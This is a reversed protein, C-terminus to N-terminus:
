RRNCKLETNINTFGIYFECPEKPLNDYSNCLEDYNNSKINKKWCFIKWEDMDKIYKSTNTGMFDYWNNWVGKSKFYQEPEIIFNNHIIHSNMYERKSAIYLSQNISKVYNYEDQEETLNSYLSKSYRLRIKLKNLETENYDYINNTMIELETDTKPKQNTKTLTYVKIKQEIKEDINRMQSIINSINNYSNNISNTVYPLIIKAVKNPKDKCLRNPRLLYQVTRIKSCMNGAVCVGNLEPLDFGEGFMYIVSIIGNPKNKFKCIEENLNYCNKSHLSENYLNEKKIFTDDSNINKEDIIYDIYKKSLEADDITNTYLLMHTLDKYKEMAIISIYCSIFLSKNNVNIKLNNIIEDVEQENNKLILILFDTIKKNEIAWYVTKLDICKGFKQINNMSYIKKNNTNSIIKETATMFLTKNSKIKHFQKFGKSEKDLYGVLHHAEDGIKFDFKINVLLYCSHYTSIIFKPEDNITIFEKIQEITVKHDGGILLINDQNPLIKLIEQKIQKQLQLSPVGILNLMFKLKKIIQIGCLAKGLGCAWILKGIDNENYFPEIIDLVHQQHENPIIRKKNKYYQRVKKITLRNFIKKIKKHNPINRIRTCRDILDIEEQTFVKYNFQFYKGLPTDKFKELIPIILNIIIIDYYETGGGKIYNNYPKLCEKVYNDIIKLLNLPLEIITNFYGKNHEYTVYTDDRNRISSTIGIKCINKNICLENIRIYLFGSKNCM